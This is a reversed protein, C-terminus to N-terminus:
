QAMCRSSSIAGPASEHPVRIASKKKEQFNGSTTTIPMTSYSKRQNNRVTYKKKWRRNENARMFFFRAM